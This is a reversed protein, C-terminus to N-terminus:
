GDKLVCGRWESGKGNLISSGPCCSSVCPADVQFTDSATLLTESLVAILQHRQSIRRSTTSSVSLGADRRTLLVTLSGVLALTARLALVSLIQAGPHFDKM